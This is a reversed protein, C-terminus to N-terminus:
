LIERAELMVERGMRDGGEGSYNEAYISVSDVVNIAVDRVTESEDQAAELVKTLNDLLKRIGGVNVGEGLMDAYRGLGAQSRM